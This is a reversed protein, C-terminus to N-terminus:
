INIHLHRLISNIDGIDQMITDNTSGCIFALKFQNLTRDLMNRNVTRFIKQIQYDLVTDAQHRLDNVNPTEGILTCFRAIVSRKEIGLEALLKDYNITSLREYDMVNKSKSMLKDYDMELVRENVNPYQSKLLQMNLPTINPNKTVTVGYIGNTKDIMYRKNITQWNYTYFGIPINDGNTLQAYENLLTFPRRDDTTIDYSMNPKLYYAFRKNIPKISDNIYPDNLRRKNSVMSPPYDLGYPNYTPNLSREYVPYSKSGYINQYAQLEKATPSVKAKRNRRKQYELDTRLSYEEITGDCIIKNINTISKDVDRDGMSISSIFIDMSPAVFSYDIAVNLEPTVTQDTM